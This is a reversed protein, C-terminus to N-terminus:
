HQKAETVTFKGQKHGYYNVDICGSGVLSTNSGLRVLKGKPLNENMENLIRQYFDRSQGNFEKEAAEDSTMAKYCWGGPTAAELYCTRGLLIFVDRKTYQNKKPLISYEKRSFEISDEHVM